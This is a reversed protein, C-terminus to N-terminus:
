DARLFHLLSDVHISDIFKLYRKSSPFVITSVIAGGTPKEVCMTLVPLDAGEDGMVSIFGQMDKMSSGFPITLMMRAGLALQKEWLTQPTESNIPSAFTM